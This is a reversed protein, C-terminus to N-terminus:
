ENFADKEIVEFGCADAWKLFTDAWTPDGLHWGCVDRLAKRPTLDNIRNDKSDDTPEVGWRQRLTSMIYDPFKNKSM